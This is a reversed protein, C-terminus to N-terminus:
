EIHATLCSSKTLTSLVGSGGVCPNLGAVEVALHFDLVFFLQFSLCFVRCRGAFHPQTKTTEGKM